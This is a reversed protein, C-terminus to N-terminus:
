RKHSAPVAPAAKAKAQLGPAAKTAAKAERRARRAIELPQDTASPRVIAAPAPNAKPSPMPDSLAPLAIASHLAIVSHQGTTAVAPAAKM